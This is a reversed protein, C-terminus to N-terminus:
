TSLEHTTQSYM